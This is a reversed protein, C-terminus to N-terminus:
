TGIRRTVGGNASLGLYPSIPSVFIGEISVIVPVINPDHLVTRTKGWHLVLAPEGTKEESSILRQGTGTYVFVWMPIVLNEPGFWYVHDILPWATQGEGPVGLFMIYDGLSVPAKTRIVIRERNPLGRDYVGWIELEDLIRIM